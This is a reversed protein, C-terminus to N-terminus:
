GAMQKILQRVKLQRLEGELQRAFINIFPEPNECEQMGEPRHVTFGLYVSAVIIAGTSVSRNSYWEILQKLRSPVAHRKQWDNILVSKRFHKLVHVADITQQLYIAQQLFSKRKQYYFVSGLNVFGDATLEPMKKVISEFEFKNM